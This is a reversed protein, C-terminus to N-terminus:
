LTVGPPLPDPNPVATAELRAVADSCYDVAMYGSPRHNGSCGVGGFPALGSAGTLQQNWNVIGAHTGEVFREFLGRDRTVVGASLGFESRNVGAMADEFTAVREVQLLPGFIEDDPLDVVNTVDILGPRLFPVGPEAPEMRVLAIGGRDLLVGQQELLKIASDRNIVPGLFPPPDSDPPGVSLALVADTLRELFEDNQAPIFLRRAATCRQGATIFCSQITLAIAARVDDYDWVVLANNGGMELVLLKEPHAANAESIAVGTRRSGNFFVGDIRDHSSLLRGTEAGGQLLNFAGPPLGASEWLRAYVEGAHPTLPSPKFVITNGALLAPMIHGNPMHAPFNFPGLVAVVGLPRFYSVSEATGVQQIRTPAREEYGAVTPALKSKVSGVETRAEWLPKGVDASIAHALDEGQAELLAVFAELYRRRGEYGLGSWASSAERAATVAANVTAPGASPGSWLIQDGYPTTGILPNGDGSVWEGGIFQRGLGTTL